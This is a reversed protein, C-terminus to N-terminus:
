KNFLQTLDSQQHLIRSIVIENTNESIWYFIIHNMAPISRYKDDIDVRIRGSKPNYQLMDFTHKISDIYINAQTNGWQKQTYAIISEIDNHADSTISLKLPTPTM